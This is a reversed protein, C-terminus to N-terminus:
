EGLVSHCSSVLSMLLRKAALSPLPLLLLRRRPRCSPDRFLGALVSTTRGGTGPPSPSSHRSRRPARRHLRM